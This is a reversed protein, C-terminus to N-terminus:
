FCDFEDLWKLLSKIDSTATKVMIWVINYFMEFDLKEANLKGKALMKRAVEIKGTKVAQEKEEQLTRTINATM